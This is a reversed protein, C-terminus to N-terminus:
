ISASRREWGLAEYFAISRALDAVGLTVISIRAPITM